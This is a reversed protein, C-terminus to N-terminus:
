PGPPPIYSNDVDSSCIVTIDEVVNNGLLIFIPAEYLFDPALFVTGPPNNSARQRMLQLDDMLLSGDWNVDGALFELGVLEPGTETIHQWLLQVDNMSLGGWPKTTSFNISYYGDAIDIFEFYGTGDTITSGVLVNDYDYLSVNCADLSSSIANAYSINGSIGYGSVIKIDDVCLFGADMESYGHWGFYYVGTTLPLITAIGEQYDFNTINDDNFILGETMGSVDPFIGWRVELKDTFSGGASRYWFKIIYQKGAELYLPPSFFWDDMDLIPNGEIYISNMGNNPNLSSTEWEKDDGNDNTATMLQPLDPTTVIEFNQEYPIQYTIDGGIQFRLIQDPSPILPVSWGYGNTRHPIEDPYYATKSENYGEIPNNAIDNGDISIIHIGNMSGDDPIVSEPILFSWITSDSNVSEHITPIWGLPYIDTINVNLMPESTTIEITIDETGNTTGIIGNNPNSPILELMENQWFWESEFLSTIAKNGGLIKGKQVIPAFNDVKVGWSKSILGTGLDLADIKILYRGDPFQANKIHDADGGTWYDEGNKLKTRWYRDQVANNETLNTFSFWYCYVPNEMSTRSTFYLSNLIADNPNGTFTYFQNPNIKNNTKDLIYLEIAYPTSTIGRFVNAGNPWCTPLWASTHGNQDPTTYGMNDTVQCLIQINGFLVLKPNNALNLWIFNAGQQKRISLPGIVPLQNGPDQFNGIIAWNQQLPNLATNHFNGVAGTFNIFHTHDFSTNCYSTGGIYTINDGSNYLTGVAPMPYFPGFKLHAYYYNINNINDHVVVYDGSASPGRAIVICNNTPAQVKTSVPWNYRNFGTGPIDIGDHWYGEYTGYSGGVEEDGTTPWEVQAELIFSTISICMIIIIRYCYVDMNSIMNILRDM